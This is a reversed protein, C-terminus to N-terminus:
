SNELKELIHTKLKKYLTKAHNIGLLLYATCKYTIFFVSWTAEIFIIAESLIRTIKVSRSGILILPQDLVKKPLINLIDVLTQNDFLKKISNSFLEGLLTLTDYCIVLIWLNALVFDLLVLTEQLDKMVEFNMISKFVGGPSASVARYWPALHLMEVGSFTKGYETNLSLDSSMIVQRTAGTPGDSWKLFRWFITENLDLAKFKVDYNSAGNCLYYVGVYGDWAKEWCGLNGGRSSPARAPFGNPENIWPIIADWAKNKFSWRRYSIYNATPYGHFFCYVDGSVPDLCLCPDAEGTGGVTAILEEPGWYHSETFYVRHYVNLDSGEFVFHINNETDRIAWTHYNENGADYQQEMSHVSARYRDPWTDVSENRFFYAPWEDMYAILVMTNNPLDVLIGQPICDNSNNQSVQKPYGNVTNWLGDITIDHDSRSVRRYRWVLESGYSWSNWPTGNSSPRYHHDAYVYYGGASHMIQWDAKWTIAGDSNPTGIRVYLIYSDKVSVHIYTGDFIVQGSTGYQYQTNRVYVPTDWNLGDLSTKYYLQAGTTVYFQWFRGAAHFGKTGERQIAFSNNLNVVTGPGLTQSLKTSLLTPVSLNITAGTDYYKEFLTELEVGQVTLPLKSTPGTSSVTLKKERTGFMRFYIDYNAYNTWSTGNYSIMRGPAYGGGGEDSTSNIQWSANASSTIYLVVGYWKSTELQFTGAFEFEIWDDEKPYGGIGMTRCYQLAEKTISVDLPSGTPLGTPANSTLNYIRAEIQGGADWANMKCYRFYVARLYFKTNPTQVTQGRATNAASISQRNAHFPTVFDVIKEWLM